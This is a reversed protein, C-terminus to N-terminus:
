QYWEYERLKQSCFKRVIDYVFQSYSNFHINVVDYATSLVKLTLHKERHHPLLRISPM